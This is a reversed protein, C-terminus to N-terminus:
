TAETPPKSETAPTAPTAPTSPKDDDKPPSTNELSQEPTKKPEVDTAVPKTDAYEGVKIISSAPSEKGAVDVAVIYYAAPTTGVNVALTSSSHVSAVKKFNTSHNPAAYVRYGIVDNDSNGSWRIRSGSASVGSVQRPNSGNDAIEKGETVVLNGFKSTNPLLRKLDSVSSIGHKDLISKKLMVGQQVFESPASSPVQYAQDKVVIYKGQTLSDDVKTPVYKVNFLDSAVLGASQCLKSPLEGTLACYSRSVIGDPMQFRTKPALLEPDVDHAANMLKAWLLINRKSYSMGKYNVELSKPTDYGIWTGFTVNPNTAVFWADKYDQGTGTKGAWDANFSLYGNLSAATGSRIVDRMMDITLYATQASFVDSETKEHQYVTEGNSTEIKEIMYGDIFKGSNAFTAYANVNEEVTVGKTMAGLSLSAIGYDAKQLDSFGMKELYSLPNQNIIDMYAKVTPVNYSHKLANRASTLGHYAGGYNKPNYTGYPKLTNPTDAIVSGPQLKGLEMAAAYVLLPKMTSGNPRPANTAHNTSERDFDRGGVFSIIKGTSNEILLGGVEVPEKVLKEEGTEPDTDEENKDSGYYQYDAVVDRMKEYIGKNITTHIRYGDHRIDNDAIDYYQKYLDNDKDLDDETYGDNKALQVMVIEKARHEIEYTLFPYQDVPTPKKATLNARIDYALADKYESETIYGGTHMRNLVTKMRNIGPNLNEKIAGGDNSFPTYGFPSQPLGAIFASQPINLDKAEVGFIGKAASQVGAINRGNSNRGFDTANLYAEIIEDKEFFRELRLALLIEKAKRDFSVENTLIQNKILQQTLTSGGTQVAANTFEQFIARMIAKPVVGEHEYFLEDETAIVANVLHKSVDALKIEERDIDANLKGLYVNNSFYVESSEEYNYIDSKMVEYSRIPEDKVLSAFYGAGLGGAFCVGFLGIVFFLLLLNGIVNYSIHFGRVMDKNFPSFRRPKQDKKKM